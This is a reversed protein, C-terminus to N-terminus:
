SPGKIATLFITLVTAADLAEDCYFFDGIQGVFPFLTPTAQGIRFPGSESPVYPVDASSRLEANVYLKLTVGDYTVALYDTSRLAITGGTDITNFTTGDGLVAIWHNEPSAYLAYGRNDSGDNEASFVVCRYAAPASEPTWDTRVWGAVTFRPANLEPTFPVEAYGGNVYVSHRSPANGILSPYQLELTGPAAASLGAVEAVPGNVYTADHGNKHDNADPGVAEDLYWFAVLSPLGDVADAFTEPLSVPDLGFLEDCGVFGLLLIVALLALPIGALALLTM